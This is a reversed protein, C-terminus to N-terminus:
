QFNKDIGEEKTGEKQVDPIECHNSSVPVIKM